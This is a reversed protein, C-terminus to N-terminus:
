CIDISFLIPEDFIAAKRFSLQLSQFLLILLM